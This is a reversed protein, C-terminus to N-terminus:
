SSAKVRFRPDNYMKFQRYIKPMWQGRVWRSSVENFEQALDDRQRTLIALRDRCMGRHEDSVDSRDIQEQTHYIKLEMICIKDILSGLTEAV